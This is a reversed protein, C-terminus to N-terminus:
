RAPRAALVLGRVPCMDRPMAAGAPQDGASWRLRLGSTPRVVALGPCALARRAATGHRVMIGAIRM